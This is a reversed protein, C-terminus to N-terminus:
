LLMFFNDLLTIKNSLKKISTYYMIVISTILHIFEKNQSVISYENNLAM